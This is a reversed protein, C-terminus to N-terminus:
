YQRYKILNKLQYVEEKRSVQIKDPSKHPHFGLIKLARFVNKLLSKNRNSFLLKYTYTPRHTCFSGEAEYLGRLYRVLYKKNQLIWLPIKINQKKRSGAPINLRESIKKQYIRIRVCNTFKGSYSRSAKTNFLKSLLNAYRKIFGLNNANSAITLSETRPFKGIHGDGLIVGILEALDGNQRLPPYDSRIKGLTKMGERWKAFNDIKKEKMTQSIKLVSPHTEKTYGKSWPPPRKKLSERWKQYKPHNRPLINPSLLGCDKKGFKSTYDKLGINHAKKLHTQTILRFNRRCLQCRVM